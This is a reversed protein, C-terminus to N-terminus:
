LLLAMDAGVNNLNVLPHFLLQINSRAHMHLEVHPQM